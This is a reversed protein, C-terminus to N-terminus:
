AHEGNMEIFHKAQGQTLNDKVLKPEVTGNPWTKVHEYVSYLQIGTREDPEPHNLMEFQRLPEVPCAHENDVRSSHCCWCVEHEPKAKVRLNKYAGHKCQDLPKRMAAEMAADLAEEAERKMDDHPCPRFTHGWECGEVEHPQEALSGDSPYIESYVADRLGCDCPGNPKGPEHHVACDSLHYGRAPLGDTVAKIAETKEDYPERRYGDSERVVPATEAIAKHAWMSANELETFMVSKARGGPTIQDLAEALQRFLIRVETHKPLTANDGEITAKHFGFRHEIEEPGLRGDTMSM